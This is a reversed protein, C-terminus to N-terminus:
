PGASAGGANGTGWITRRDRQTVSLSDQSRLLACCCCGAAEREAADNFGLRLSQRVLLQCLLCKSQQRFVGARTMMWRHGGPGVGLSPKQSRAGGLPSRQAGLHPEKSHRMLYIALCSGSLLLARQRAPSVETRETLRSGGVSSGAAPVPRM